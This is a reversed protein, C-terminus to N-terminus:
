SRRPETRSSTVRDALAANMADFGHQTERALLPGVLRPLLGTFRERQVFRVHSEDIPEIEFWHEGCALWPALVYGRWHLAHNPDSYLVTARFRLPMGFSSRVRVHVDDGPIASGRAARIFPNWAAYHAFDTLVSWVAPASAPIDTSASVDM